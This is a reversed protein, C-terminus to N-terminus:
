ERGRGHASGHASAPRKGYQSLRAFRCAVMRPHCTRCGSLRRLLQILDSFDVRGTGYYDFYALYGADGQSKGFTSAFRLLDQVDIV